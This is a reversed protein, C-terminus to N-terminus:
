TKCCTTEWKSFKNSIREGGNSGMKTTTWWCKWMSNNIKLKLSGWRSIWTTSTVLERSLRHIQMMRVTKNSTCNMPHRRSIRSTITVLRRSRCVILFIVPAMGSRTIAKTIKMKRKISNDRIIIITVRTLTMLILFKCSKFQFRCTLQNHMIRIEIWM